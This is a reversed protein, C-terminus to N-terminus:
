LHEGNLYKNNHLQQQQSIFKKYNYIRSYGNAVAMKKIPATSNVPQL